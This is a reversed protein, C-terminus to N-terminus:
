PVESSCVIPPRGVRAGNRHRASKRPIPVNLAVFFFAPSTSSDQEFIFKISSAVIQDCHHELLDSARTKQSASALPVWLQSFHAPQSHNAEEPTELLVRNPPSLLTRRVWGPWFRFMCHIVKELRSEHTKCLGVKITKFRDLDTAFVRNPTRKSSDPHKM